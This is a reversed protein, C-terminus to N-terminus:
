SEEEPKAEGELSSNRLKEAALKAAITFLLNATLTGLTVGFGKKFSQKMRNRREKLFRDVEGYCGKNIEEQTYEPFRYEGM